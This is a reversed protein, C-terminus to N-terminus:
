SGIMNYVLIDNIKTSDYDIIHSQSLIQKQSFSSGSGTDSQGTTSESISPKM